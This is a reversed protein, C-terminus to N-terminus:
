QPRQQAVRVLYNWLERQQAVAAGTTGEIQGLNQDIRVLDARRQYEMDQMAQTLRLAMERRQRQESQQLLARVQRLVAADGPAQGTRAAAPTPQAGTRTQLEHEVRAEFAQLEPQWPQAASAAVPSPTQAAAAAPWGTRVVLGRADYRVEVHAVGAAVALVLVAAAAQLPVRWAVWWPARASGPMVVFGPEREPPAWQTLQRRVGQLADLEDRCAACTALHAEVQARADADAEDYLYAILSERDHSAEYQQTM